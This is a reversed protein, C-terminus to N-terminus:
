GHTALLPPMPCDLIDAVARMLEAEATNIQGDHEICRAMAKLLQPKQLPWLLSLRRLAPELASLNSASAPLLQELPFPLESSAHKFALQAASEDVGGARALLSLVVCTEDALEPLQYRSTQARAKSTASSM